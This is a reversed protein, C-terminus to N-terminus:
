KLFITEYKCFIQLVLIFPKLIGEGLTVLQQYKAVNKITRELVSEGYTYIIERQREIYACM